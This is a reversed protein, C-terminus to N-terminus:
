AVERTLLLVQGDYPHSEHKMIARKEVVEFGTNKYLRLAGRNQEFVELSLLDAEANLALQNAKEILQRGVGQNRYQPFTALMNIYFSGPVCHELEILPRIFEPYDMLNDETDKDPLRYALLMGMVHHNKFALHVNRYSFNDNESSALRAGAQLGTEDPQRAADWFYAPIGEGAMLALTAIADCDSKSAASIIM